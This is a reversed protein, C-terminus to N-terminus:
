RRGITVTALPYRYEQLLKYTYANRRLYHLMNDDYAQISKEPLNGEHTRFVATFAAMEMWRILLDKDRETRTHLYENVENNIYTYGGVDTHTLSIGSFGASIMAVLGSQIGNHRGWNQNQDGAWVLRTLNPTYTYGSRTFFVYDDKTDQEVCYEEIAESV